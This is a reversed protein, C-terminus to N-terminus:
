ERKGLYLEEGAGVNDIFSIKDGPSIQYDDGFRLVNDPYSQGDALVVRMGPGSYDVSAVEAARVTSGYESPNSQATLQAAIPDPQAYHLEGSSISVGLGDMPQASSEVGSSDGTLLAAGIGGVTVLGAALIHKPNRTIIKELKVM